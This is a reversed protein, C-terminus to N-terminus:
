NELKTKANEIAEEYEESSIDEREIEQASRTASNQNNLIRWKCGHDRTQVINDYRRVKLSTTAEKM